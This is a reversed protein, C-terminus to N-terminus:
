DDLVAGSIEDATVGARLASFVETDDLLLIMLQDTEAEPLTDTLVISVVDSGGEIAAVNLDQLVAAIRDALPRDEVVLKVALGSIGINVM